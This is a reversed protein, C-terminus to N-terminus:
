QVGEDDFFLFTLGNVMEDGFLLLEDTGFLIRDLAKYEGASPVSGDPRTFTPQIPDGSLLFMTEGNFSLTGSIEDGLWSDLVVRNSGDSLDLYFQFLLPDDPDDTFEGGFFASADLGREPVSVDRSYGIELRSFGDLFALRDHLDYEVGMRGALFGGSRIDSILEDQTAVYQGEVFLDAITKNGDSRVGKIGLRLTEGSEDFLDLYGVQDTPATRPQGTFPDLGYTFFRVGNPPAGGLREDIVYGQLSRLVFTKGLLTDPIIGSQAASLAAAVQAVSAAAEARTRVAEAGLLDGSRLARIALHRVGIHSAAGVPAPAVSAEAPPSWYLIVDGVRPLHAIAANGDSATSLDELITAIQSADFQPGLGTVDEGCGYSVFALSAMLLM